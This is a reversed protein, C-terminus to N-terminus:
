DLRAHLDYWNHERGLARRARSYLRSPLTGSWRGGFGIANHQLRLAQARLLTRDIPEWVDRLDNGFLGSHNSSLQMEARRGEGGDLPERQKPNDRQNIYAFRRYGLTWLEALEDFSTSFEARTVSVTSEVSVFDPRTDFSRLARVCLMDHGEIDIKLYRPIGVEELIGAFPRTPVDVYRYTTGSRENREIFETSLSSWVTVDDAIAFPLTGEQEAIAVALIRLRGAAIEAAFRERGAEALDPHAEIAVVDFGKALYFATDGGDHMGVDIVLNDNKLTM